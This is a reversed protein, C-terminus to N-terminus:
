IRLLVAFLDFLIHISREGYGIAGASVVISKGRRVCKAIRAWKHKRSPGSWPHDANLLVRYPYIDFPYQVIFVPSEDLKFSNGAKVAKTNGVRHQYKFSKGTNM